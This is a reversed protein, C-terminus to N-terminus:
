LSCYLNKMKLTPVTERTVTDDEVLIQAGVEREEKAQLARAPDEALGVDPELVTLGETQALVMMIVSM